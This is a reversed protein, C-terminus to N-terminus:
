ETGLVEQSVSGCKGSVNRVGTSLVLEPNKMEIPEGCFNGDAMFFDFGSMVRSGFDGWFNCNM